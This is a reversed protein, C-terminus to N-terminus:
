PPCLRGYSQLIFEVAERLSNVAVYPKEPEKERYQYQVFFCACGARQGAAVDRWRDGVVFSAQLNVHLERAAELLMGPEPKRCACRDADVHYCVKVADLPLEKLLREHMTEVTRRRVKGAGVDPQNTVVVNLYGAARLRELAEPVGPLIEFQELSTPAYPRGDRVLARNIVGDRDLFVARRM